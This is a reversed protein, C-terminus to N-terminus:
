YQDMQSLLCTNHIVVNTDQQSQYLACRLYKKYAVTIIYCGQHYLSELNRLREMNLFWIIEALSSFIRQMYWKNGPGLENQNLYASSVQVYLAVHNSTEVTLHLLLLKAKYTKYQVATKIM